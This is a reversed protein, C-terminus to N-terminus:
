DAVHELVQQDMPKHSIVVTVANRLYKVAAAQLKQHDLTEVQRRFKEPEDLGLDYLENLAADTARGANTQKYLFEDTLVKAKAAALSADDVPTNRARDVVALSRELAQDVTDAQTNFLIAFYGPVLGTFQGAGVAYVLGPGRGRLEQELWGSPFRSMVAALVSLTPYDASRRPPTPGFGIQVAALPKNTKFQFVGHQPTAPTPPHFDLAPRKPTEAFLRGVRRIVQRPDVDGFVALVTDTAALHGQHFLRLEQTSLSEVVKRKGPPTTSWPHDAFYANRFHSRLEGNWTDTQRDIAALLRPQLKGWQDDPFTPNLTVDALLELVKPWDDKLCVAKSFLTNYGCNTTLSAGLDEIQQAIQQATRNRTGKIRMASSAYALGARDPPDALHGGLHYVQMAVAPVVTSRGILLRLGNPMVYRQIPQVQIEATDGTEFADLVRLRDLIAANDLDVQEHTQSAAPSAQKQATRALTKPKHGPPQPLLTVRILKSPELFRVGAQQVQGATVAQIAQAYRKLYDPDRMSILDSAL